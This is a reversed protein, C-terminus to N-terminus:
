AEEIAGVARLRRLTEIVDIPRGGPVSSCWDDVLEAVTAGDLVSWLAMAAAPLVVEQDGVLVGRGDIPVVGPRRVPVSGLGIPASYRPSDSTPSTGSM